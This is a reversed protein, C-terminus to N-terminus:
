LQKKKIFDAALLAIYESSKFVFSHDVNVEKMQLDPQYVMLDKMYEYPAWGDNKTYIVNTLHKIKDIVKKNLETVRDMEDYALFLVKELITPNLINLIRTRNISSFGNIKLYVYVLFSLFLQPLYLLFSFFFLLSHMKRIFGNLFKGKESLSIKQITPFLLNVSATREYVHHNNDLLELVFWSGISHGILHLRSKKDIHNEILDLKHKLQGNLNFIDEQGRLESQEDSLLEHGAHGAATSQQYYM